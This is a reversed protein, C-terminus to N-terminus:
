VGGVDARHESELWSLEKELKRRRLILSVLLAIGLGFIAAYGAVLYGFTDPTNTM